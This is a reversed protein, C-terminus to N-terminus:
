PNLRVTLLELKPLIVEKYRTLRGVPVTGASEQLTLKQYNGEIPVADVSVELCGVTLFWIFISWCLTKSYSCHLVSEKLIHLNEYLFEAMDRVCTENLLFVGSVDLVQLDGVNERAIWNDVNYLRDWKCNGYMRNKWLFNGGSEMSLGVELFSKIFGKFGCIMRRIDGIYDDFDGCIMRRIDGIYDDFDMGKWINMIIQTMMILIQKDSEIAEMGIWSWVSKFSFSFGDSQVAFAIFSLLVWLMLKCGIPEEPQIDCHANNSWQGKIHDPADSKLELWYNVLKKQEEWIEM